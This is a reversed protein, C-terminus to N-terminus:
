VVSKRDKIRIAECLSRSLMEDYKKKFHQDRYINGIVSDITIMMM